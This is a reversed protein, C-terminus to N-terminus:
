KKEIEEVTRLIRQIKRLNEQAKVGLSTTPGYEVVKEFADRAEGYNERSYQQLGLDYYKQQAAVDVHQTRTPKPPNLLSCGFLNLSLVVIILFSRIM